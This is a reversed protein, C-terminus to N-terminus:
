LKYFVALAAFLLSFGAVSASRTRTQGWPYGGVVDKCEGNPIIISPLPDMVPITNCNPDVWCKLIDVIQFRTNSITNPDCTNPQRLDLHHASGPIELVYIGRATNTQDSKYGGGSWPDLHGQSSHSSPISLLFFYERSFLIVPDPCISVMCHRSLMLTGTRLTGGWAESFLSVNRSSHTIFTTEASPGSCTMLAEAPACPWSSRPVNRGRGVWSITESGRLERTEACRTTLATRSTRCKITTTTSTRLRESWRSLTRIVSPPEQPTWTDVLWRSQGLPCRSWSLRRTRTTSWRWTSSPKESCM